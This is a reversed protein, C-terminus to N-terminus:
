RGCPVRLHAPPLVPSPQPWCVAFRCREEATMERNEEERQTIGLLISKHHPNNKQVFLTPSRRSHPCLLSIVAEATGPMRCRQMVVGECICSVVFFGRHVDLGIFVHKGEYSITKM